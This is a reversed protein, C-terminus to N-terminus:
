VLTLPELRVSCGHNPFLFRAPGRQVHSGVLSVVM